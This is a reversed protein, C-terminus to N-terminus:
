LGERLVQMAKEMQPDKGADYDENSIKVEIDPKLGEKNINKGSPTLWEAVTIKVSSNDKLEQVEQVSGKGYTKEGIIKIQRDDRLAGALIEAASASGENALIVMPMNGLKNDGKTLYEKQRDSFKEITVIKGAPIFVGAIDVASNLYGGPNNRLDLIIKGAGKALIENSASIVGQFTDDGFKSIKLVAINGKDAKGSEDTFKLETSKVEITDRVIKIERTEVEDGRLITLTVTTGKPGRILGVAEDLSLDITSTDNIKLIKDMSKLGAQEAPTDPLPAIVTIIGKRIGIEAGIGDFVGSLEESFKKTENPDMFTTYPDDLSNVMGGIAGYFMKTKDPKTPSKEELLRWTDWFLSFDIDAPKGMESNIIKLPGVFPIQKQGYWVGAGFFAAAVAIVSILKIIKKILM